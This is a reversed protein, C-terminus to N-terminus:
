VYSVVGNSVSLHDVSVGTLTIVSVNDTQDTVTTVAGTTANVSASASGGATAEVVVNTGTATKVFFFELANNNGTSVAGSNFTYGSGLLISDGTGFGTIAHDFAATKSAFYFTEAKAIATVDATKTTLNVVQGQLSGGTDVAKDLADKADGATKIVADYQVKVAQASALAKDAAEAKTLTEVATKSATVADTYAKSLAAAASADAAAGTTVLASDLASTASTVATDAKAIAVAKDAATVLNEGFTGLQAKAEAALTARDATSLAPNNLALLLSAADSISTDSTLKGDLATWVAKQATSGDTADKWTTEIGAKAANIDAQNQTKQAATAQSAIATDLTATANATATVKTVATKATELEATTTTVNGKLTATAAGIDNRATSLKAIVGTVNTTLEAYSVSGDKDTDYSDNATAVSKGFDVVAKDAAIQTNILGLGVIQGPLAGNNIATLATSVSAATGDVKDIAAAAATKSFNTGATDTYTQAVFTKNNIVAQDAAGAFEIFAAVLQDAPRTDTEAWYKVEDASPTREFLNQYISTVLDARTAAAGYTTTYETSTVFSARVDELTKGGTTVQDAWWNLGGQDAARGLLGVYLQQIQTATTTAM